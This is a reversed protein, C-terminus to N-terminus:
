HAQSVHGHSRTSQQGNPPAGNAAIRKAVLDFIEASNFRWLKGVRVAELKGRTAWNRITRACVNLVDAVESSSMMPPRVQSQWTPQQDQVTKFSSTFDSRSRIADSAQM